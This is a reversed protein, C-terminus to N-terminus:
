RSSQATAGMLSAGLGKASPTLDYASLASVALCSQILLSLNIPAAYAQFPPRFCRAKDQVTLGNGWEGDLCLHLWGFHTAEREKLDTPGLALSTSSAKFGRAARSIKGSM